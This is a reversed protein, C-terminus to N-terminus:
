FENHHDQCNIQGDKIITQQTEIILPATLAMYYSSDFQSVGNYYLAINQTSITEDFLENHYYNMNNKYINTSIISPYMMSQPVAVNPMDIFYTLDTKHPRNLLCHSLEHFILYQRDANTTTSKKWWTENIIIYRPSAYVCAGLVVSNDISSNYMINVMRVPKNVSAGIEQFKTTYKSFDYNNVEIAVCSNNQKQFGDKCIWGNCDSWILGGDNSTELGGFSNLPQKQCLRTQQKIVCMGNQNVFGDMCSWQQCGTWHGGGDITSEIGGFSNLPQNQCDRTQNAQICKDGIQIFGSNCAWSQCSGWQIGGNTTLEIGGHSNLPQNQCARTQMTAVCNGQNLTYGNLCKSGTCSSWIKGGDFSSEIGGYSNVPQKQCARKIEVAICVGNKEEYGYNCRWGSCQNSWHQGGDNSSEIGGTSNMPQNSCARFQDKLICSGNILIQNNQCSNQNVPSTQILTCSGNVLEYQDQCIWDQCDSWTVGNNISKEIGGISNIPQNVCQRSIEVIVNPIDNINECKNITENLKFSEKCSCKGSQGNNQANSDKCIKKINNIKTPLCAQLFMLSFTILIMRM